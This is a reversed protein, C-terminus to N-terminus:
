PRSRGEPRSGAGAGLEPRADVAEVGTVPCFELDCHHHRYVTPRSVRFMEAIQSVTLEGEDYRRRIEADVKASLVARRGGKRGRARAAALGDRTRAVILDHEFEAIAGLLNFLLRGEITATDINQETVRLNVGRDRLLFSIEVLDKMSRALRDLRTIVLTDGDRLLDLVHDWVPRSAKTGTFKKLHIDARDVGASLLADLQSDLSQLHTSVRGYGFTKNM